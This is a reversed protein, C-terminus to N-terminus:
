MQDSREIFLPLPFLARAFANGQMPGSSYTSVPSFILRMAELHSLVFRPAEETVSVVPENSRVSIKLNCVGAIGLTFEGDPLAVDKSKLKLFAGIVKPYNFVNYHFANSATFGQAFTSLEALLETDTPSAKVEVREQKFTRLYADLAQTLMSMDTLYLESISKRDKSALFFGILKDAQWIGMPTNRWSNLIEYFVERPRDFYAKKKVHLQHWKDLEMRSDSTIEKLALTVPPLKALNHRINVATCTFSLGSGCPTYGFYEYRQRQGQLCSFDMGGKRMDELAMHLLQKMYGKSRFRHHVTVIGIGSMKLPVECVHFTSPYSGVLAVIKGNEKVIYHQSPDFLEEKYLKPLIAVFDYPEYAYSFVLDALDILENYDAHVAKRYEVM